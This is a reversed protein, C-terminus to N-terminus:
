LMVNAHGRSQSIIHARIELVGLEGIVVIEITPFDTNLDPTPFVPAYIATSM